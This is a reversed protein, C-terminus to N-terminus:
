YQALSGARRAQNLAAQFVALAIPIALAAAPVLILLPKLEIENRLLAGRVIDLVWKFPSADSLTQLPQPLLSVPFYVGSLLAIGPLLIGVIGTTQKFVVTFAGVAVGLATFLAVALAVSGAAVMWAVANGTLRLGFFAMALGVTAVGLLTARFIEFASSGVIVLWSPASTSFLPEFTGTTQEDRFRRGVANLGTQGIRFLAIGIAAFAFYGGELEGNSTTSPNVLDSLYFFLALSFFTGLLELVIPFRYSVAVLWDRRLFAYLVTVPQM